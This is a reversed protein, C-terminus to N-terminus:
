PEQEVGRGAASPQMVNPLRNIAAMLVRIPVCISVRNPEQLETSNYHVLLALDRDRLPQQVIRGPGFLHPSQAELGARDAIV